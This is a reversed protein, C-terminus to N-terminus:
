SHRIMSNIIGLATFDAILHSGGLSMFPLAIGIIPLLGLNMGTNIFVEVTLKIAFGITFLKCFNYPFILAWYTLRYILVLYSGLLLIIGVFGLEEGLAAFIFDSKALPLFRLHTQTGWGLGKGFIGGSGIAILSQERNYGTGLPDAQPNLFGLLRTKQYPKLFFSWSLGGLIICIILLFIVQKFRIRSVVVLGFWILGLIIAGGLDPQLAVLAMPLLAFTGSALLKPFQWIELHRSSLYKALILLLIMKAFEVPQFSFGGFRFWGSAGHSKTGVVLVLGLLLLTFLYLLWLVSSSNFIRWDLHSFFLFVLFAIGLFLLQKQFSFFPPNDQSSLSGLISLGLLVIIILASYLLTDPKKM